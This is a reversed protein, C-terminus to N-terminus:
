NTEMEACWLGFGFSPSLTAHQQLSEKESGFTGHSGGVLWGGVQHCVPHIILPCLCLAM